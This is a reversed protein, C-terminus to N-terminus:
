LRDLIRRGIQWNKLNSDSNIHGYAGINEFQSGWINAFEKAKNIDIWKDNTSAIIISPFNLKKLPMPNFGIADIPEALNDVDTPAVLLAGRIKLEYENAWHIITAVGLSHGILIVKSLDENILYENLRSVWDNKSVNEGWYDQIIIQSNPLSKSWYTQWHNEDSGRFGPILFYKPM